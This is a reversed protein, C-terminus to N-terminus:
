KTGKILNNTLLLSQTVVFWGCIRSMRVITKVVVVVVVVVVVLQDKMATTMPSFKAKQKMIVQDVLCRGRGKKKQISKM